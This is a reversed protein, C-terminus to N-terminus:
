EQQIIKLAAEYVQDKGEKLGSLAQKVLIDPAIGTTQMEEGNQRLTYSSTLTIKINGPTFFWDIGGAAGASNSDGILTAGTNKLYSAFTEGRSITTSAISSGILVTIKANIFPRKPITLGSRWIHYQQEQNPYMNLPSSIILGKGLGNDVPLHEFITRLSNPYNRLDFILHEAKLIEDLKESLDEPSILSPNIYITKPNPYEFPKHEFPNNYHKFYKKTSITNVEVTLIEDNRKLKIVGKSTNILSGISNVANFLNLQPSGIRSEIKNDILSKVEKGNVELIEDGNKIKPDFSKLVYVKGQSFIRYFPLWSRVNKPKNSNQNKEDPTKYRWVVAHPDHFLSVYNKIAKLSTSKKDKSNSIQELGMVLQELSRFDFMRESRKRYPYLHHIANWTLIFDAYWVDEEQYIAKENPYFEELVKSFEEIEAKKTIHKAEQNYLAVPMTIWLNSNLGSSFPLSPDPQKKLIYKNNMESNDSYRYNDPSYYINSNFYNIHEFQVKDQLFLSNPEIIKGSDFATTVLIKINNGESKVGSNEGISLSSHQWFTISDGSSIPKITLATNEKNSFITYPAITSFLDSLVTKLENDTKLSKVKQIGYILFAEWNFDKTTVNPYFFRVYGYSKAFASLNKVEQNYTDEINSQAKLKYFGLSLNLVMFIIFVVQIRRKM